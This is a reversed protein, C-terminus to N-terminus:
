AKGNTKELEAIWIRHQTIQERTEDIKGQFLRITEEMRPIENELSEKDYPIM